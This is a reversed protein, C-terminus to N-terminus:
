KNPDLKQLCFRCLPRTVLLDYDATGLQSQFFVQIYLTNWFLKVITNWINSLEVISLKYVMLHLRKQLVRWVTVNTM